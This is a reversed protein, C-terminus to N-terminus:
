SPFYKILMKQCLSSLPFYKMLMLSFDRLWELSDVIENLLKPPLSHLYWEDQAINNSIPNLFWFGWAVLLYGKSVSEGECAVFCLLSLQKVVLLASWWHCTSRGCMSDCGFLSLLVLLVHVHYTCQYHSLRWSITNKVGWPLITDLDPVNLLRLCVECYCGLISILRLDLPLGVYWSSSPLCRPHVLALPKVAISLHILTSYLLGGFFSSEGFGERFKWFVKNTGVCHGLYHM